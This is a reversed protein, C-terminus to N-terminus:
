PVFVGQFGGKRAGSIAPDVASSAIKCDECRRICETKYTAMRVAISVLAYGEEHHCHEQPQVPILNIGRFRLNYRDEHVECRPTHGLDCECLPNPRM